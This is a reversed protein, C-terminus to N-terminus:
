KLLLSIGYLVALHIPYYLYFFSKMKFKGRKGSYLMLPILALLSYWQVTSSSLAVFSLGCLAAFLRTKKGQALYVLCPYMIGCFGYEVGFDTFPLLRPVGEAILLAAFVAAAPAFSPVKKQEALDFTYIIAISISFTILICQDVSRLAILKAIQCIFGVSLISFLYKPRNKTYRCGEAIMYGYIPFAIRGIIRLILIKPFLIYGIHDITMTILAIIKLANGSLLFVAGKRPCFLFRM